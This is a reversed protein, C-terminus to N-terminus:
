TNKWPWLAVDTANMIKAPRRPAEFEQREHTRGFSKIKLKMVKHNKGWADFFRVVDFDETSFRNRAVNELRFHHLLGDSPRMDLFVKAFRQSGFRFLLLVEEDLATLVQYFLFGFHFLYFNRVFTFLFMWHPCLTLPVNVFDHRTHPLILQVVLTHLREALVQLLIWVDAFGVIENLHIHKGISSLYVYFM